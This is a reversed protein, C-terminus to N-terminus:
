KSKFKWEFEDKVIIAGLEVKVAFGFETQVIM